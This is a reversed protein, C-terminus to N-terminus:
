GGIAFRRMLPSSTPTISNCFYGSNGLASRLSRVSARANWQTDPSLRLLASLMCKEFGAAPPQDGSVSIAQVALTAL